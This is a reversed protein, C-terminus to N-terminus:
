DDLYHKYQKRLEKEIDERIKKEMDSRMRKATNRKSHWESLLDNFWTFRITFRGIKM